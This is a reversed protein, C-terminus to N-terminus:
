DYLLSFNVFINTTNGSLDDDYQTHLDLNKVTGTGSAGIYRIGASPALYTHPGVQLNIGTAVGIGFEFLDVETKYRDGYRDYHEDTEGSYFGIRVLPGAWWRFDRQRVLAFGFVNDLAIGGMEMTTDYEDKLNQGEVGVNLRYNFTSRDTPPSNLTFGAAASSSDVDFEYNDRDWEFTGTGSSVDLYPGMALAAEARGASIGSITAGLLALSAVM